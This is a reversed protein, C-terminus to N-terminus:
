ILIITDLNDKVHDWGDGMMLGLVFASGILRHNEGAERLILATQAGSLLALKDGVQIPARTLGVWQSGAVFPKACAHRKAVDFLIQIHDQWPHHGTLRRGHGHRMLGIVKNAVDELTGEEQDTLFEFWARLATQRKIARQRARRLSGGLQYGSTLNLLLLFGERTKQGAVEGLFTEHIMRCWMGIVIINKRILEVKIKEDQSSMSETTLSVLETYSPLADECFVNVGELFKGQVLLRGPGNNSPRYLAEAQSKLSARPFGLDNFIGVDNEYSYKAYPNISQPNLFTPLWSPSLDGVAKTPYCCQLMDLNNMTTILAVATRELVLRTQCSYDVAPVQVGLKRLIGVIGYAKDVPRSCQLSETAWLPQLYVHSRNRPLTSLDPKVTLLTKLTQRAFIRLVEDHHHVFFTRADLLAAAFDFWKITANGYMILCERAFAVEQVTWVRQFWSNTLIEAMVRHYPQIPVGLARYSRKM